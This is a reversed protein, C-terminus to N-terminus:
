PPSLRLAIGDMVQDLGTGGARMLQNDGLIVLVRGDRTATAGWIEQDFGGEPRLLAL